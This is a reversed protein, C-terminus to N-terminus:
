DNKPKRNRRAQVKVTFNKSQLTKILSEPDNKLTQEFTKAFSASGTKADKTVNLEFTVNVRLRTNHNEELKELTEM